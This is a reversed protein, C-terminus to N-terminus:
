PRGTMALVDAPTGFVGGLEDRFFGLFAAIRNLFDTRGATNRVYPTFGPALTPSHFSFVLVRVGSGVLARAARKLHGLSFGEPSLRIRQSAGCRALVGALHLAGAVGSTGPEILRRGNRCLFGIDAVSQPIRLIPPTGEWFCDSTWARFDPGGDRRFDTMAVGSLDIRYGLEQLISLTQPGVGYRGALYTIPRVGLTAEIRDTLLRLKEKELERPLNGPYSTYASVTEREPPNVWPHLHAGLAAGPDRLARALARIGADQAVVPYDVMYTPPVGFRTFIERARGLEQLHTIATSRRDFPASWDFEEETHIVTL